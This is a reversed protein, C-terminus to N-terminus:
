VFVVQRSTDPTLRALVEWAAPMELSTEGRAGYPVCTLRMPTLPPKGSCPSLEWSWAVAVWGAVVGAGLEVLSALRACLSTPLRRALSPLRAAAIVSLAFAARCVAARRRAKGQRPRFRAIV